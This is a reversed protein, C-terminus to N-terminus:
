AVAIVLHLYDGALGCYFTAATFGIFAGILVTKRDFRDVVSSSLIGVIMAALGYASVVTGFQRPSIQLQQRLQDGLPMVIVFDLIHTFNIAALVAIIGWQYRTFRLSPQTSTQPEATSPSSSQQSPAITGSAETHNAANTLEPEIHLDTTPIDRQTRHVNGQDEM